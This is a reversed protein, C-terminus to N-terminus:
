DATRIRRDERDTTAKVPDSSGEALYIARRANMKLQMRDSSHDMHPALQAYAGALHRYTERTRFDDNERRYITNAAQLAEIAIGTHKRPRTVAGFDIFAIGRDVNTRAYELPYAAETFVALAEAYAADARDILAKDETEGFLDRYVNALRRQTRAYDVPHADRTYYALAALYHEAATRLHAADDEGQNALARELHGQQLRTEAHVAPVTGAPRLAVAQAFAEAGKRLNERASLNQLALELHCRGTRHWVYGLREDSLLGPGKSAVYTYIKLARNYRKRSFLEDASRIEGAVQEARAAERAPLVVERVYATAYWGAVLTAVLVAAVIVIPNRDLIRLPNFM